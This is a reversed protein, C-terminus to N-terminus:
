KGSNGTTVSPTPTPVVPAVSPSVTPTAAPGTTVVPESVLTKGSDPSDKKGKEPTIGPCPNQVQHAMMIRHPFTAGESTIAQSGSPTSVQVGKKEKEDKESVEPTSAPTLSPQVTPEITVTPTPLVTVGTIPVLPTVAPSITVVPESVSTKGSDPSDKKDKEPLLVQAGPKTGSTGDYNPTALTAGESTIAQSGSPTSVQAGKKETEAFFEENQYIPQSIGGLVKEDLGSLSEGFIAGNATSIEFKEQEKEEETKEPIIVPEMTALAEIKPPGEDSQLGEGFIAGNATSIEFDIDFDAWSGFYDENAPEISAISSIELMGEEANLGVGYIAGNAISIEYELNGPPLPEEQVSVVPEEWDLSESLKVDEWNVPEEYEEEWINNWDFPDEPEIPEPTPVDTYNDACIISTLM